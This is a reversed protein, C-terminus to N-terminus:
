TQSIAWFSRLGGRIRLIIHSKTPLFEVLGISTTCRFTPFIALFEFPLGAIFDDLYEAAAAPARSIALESTPGPSVASAALEVVKKHTALFPVALALCTNM